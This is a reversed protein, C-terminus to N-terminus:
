ACPKLAAVDDSLAKVGGLLHVSATGSRAFTDLLESPVCDPHSLYLPASKLGAVVGGALADPFTAGSALYAHTAGGPFADANIARSVAYRDAGGFRQVTVGPLASLQAEIAASVAATGGAIDITGGRAAFTKVIAIEAAGLSSAAGNVLLVGGSSQIAAPTSSLADPYNQGNAIYLDGKEPAFGGTLLARSVAYRDAGGVRSVAAGPLATKLASEVGSSVAATGGVIVVSPPHLRVLEARVSAPLGDRPTLLVRGYQDGAIAGVSLADAFTEGSVIFVTASDYLDSGRSLNVAVEYRDAGGIRDTQALVGADLRLVRGFQTEAVWVYRDDTIALGSLGAAARPVSFERDFTSKSDSVGITNTGADAYWLLTGQRAYGRLDSRGVVVGAEQGSDGDKSFTHLEGPYEITGTVTGATEKELRYQRVVGFSWDDVFSGNRDLMWTTDDTHDSVWVRDGLGAIADPQGGGPIAVEDIHGTSQTLIGVSAIGAESVYVQDGGDWVHAPLAGNTPMTYETVVGAASVHAIKNFAYEAAWAGGEDDTALSTPQGTLRATAVVSGSSNLQVVARDGPVSVWVTGGAGALVDNPLGFQNGLDFEVMRSGPDIVAGAAASAVDVPVTAVSCALLGAITAGVALRFRGRSRVVGGDPRAHPVPDSVFRM